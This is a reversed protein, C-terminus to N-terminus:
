PVEISIVWDSCIYKVHVSMSPLQFVHEGGGITEWPGDDLKGSIIDDSAVAVQFRM